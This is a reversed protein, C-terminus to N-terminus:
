SYPLSRAAAVSSINIVHGSNQKRMHPLVEQCVRIVGFVNTDFQQQVESITVNEITGRLGYAANNVLVDIRGEKEIIQKVANRVSIDDTVDLQKIELNANSQKSAEELKEKRSLDRMTAYVKYNNKALLVATALGIGSSCGTILIVNNM